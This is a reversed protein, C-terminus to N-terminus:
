SRRLGATVVSVFTAPEPGANAFAHDLDADFTVADGTHLDHAAGDIELRLLGTEVLALERSGAEHLPSGGTRAGPRLVHRSVSMRAGPLDPSLLEVAHGDRRTTRRDDARLITLPPAEDLRLLQSLSLDLGVAIREAVAITPSTEGREVQSLMPASVGCRGSLDRLSLGMGERLARVRIGLSV